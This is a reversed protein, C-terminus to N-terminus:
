CDMRWPRISKNLLGERRVTVGGKLAPLVVTTFGTKAM